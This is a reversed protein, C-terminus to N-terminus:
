KLLGNIIRGRDMNLQVDPEYKQMYGQLWNLPHTYRLMTASPTYSFGGQATPAWTGGQWNGGMPSPQGNYMSQDSFTPHNPKKYTDAGHGNAAFQAGAKWFGRLDYDQLDGMRNNQQAWQQFQTEDQPNLQTNFNQLFYDDSLLGM